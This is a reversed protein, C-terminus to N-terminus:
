IRVASLLIAQPPNGLSKRAEVKGFGSSTVLEILESAEWFQFAGADELELVKSADYPFL